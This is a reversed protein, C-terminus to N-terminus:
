LGDGACSVQKYLICKRHQNTNLDIDYEKGRVTEDYLLLM